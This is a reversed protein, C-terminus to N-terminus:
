NGKAEKGEVFPESSSYKASTQDESAKSASEKGLEAHSTSFQPLSTSAREQNQHKGENKGKEVIRILLQPEGHGNEGGKVDGQLSAANDDSKAILKEVWNENGKHAKGQKASARVGLTDISLSSSEGNDNEM